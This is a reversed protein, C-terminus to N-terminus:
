ATKLYYWVVADWGHGGQHSATTNPITSSAKITNYGMLPIKWSMSFEGGDSEYVVEGNYNFGNWHGSFSPSGGPGITQPPKVDWDGGYCSKLTLTYDTQNSVNGTFSYTAQSPSVQSLVVQAAAVEATPDGSRLHRQIADLAEPILAHM